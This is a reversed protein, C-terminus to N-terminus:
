RLDDGGAASEFADLVVNEAWYRDLHGPAARRGLFACHGGRETLVVRVNALNTVVDSGILEPPVLPDDRSHVILTPVALRPMVVAASARAYYDDAGDFGFSPAILGDDFARITRLADLDDLADFAAALDPHLEVHGSDALERKRRATDRLLTVLTDRYLRSSTVTDVRRCSAALDIAPSVGAVARVQPPLEDGLLGAWRLVVNGGLSFGCVFVEEVGDRAILERVIADLDDVLGAHYLTPTLHETDGCNRINVRLADFGSPVAKSALGVMYVSTVDGALGHILVLVRSGVVGPTGGSAPTHRTVVRTGPTTDFVRETSHDELQADRRRLRSGVVTQVHRNGLGFPPVFPPLDDFDRM